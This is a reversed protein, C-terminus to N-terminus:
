TLYHGNWCRRPLYLISAHYCAGLHLAASFLSHWLVSFLHLELIIRIICYTYEKWSQFHHITNILCFSSSSSSFSSPNFYELCNIMLLLRKPLLLKARKRFYYLCRSYCPFVLACLSLPEQSGFTASCSNVTLLREQQSACSLTTLFFSLHCGFIM